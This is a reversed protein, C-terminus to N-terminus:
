IPNSISQAQSFFRSGAPMSGPKSPMSISVGDWWSNGYNANDPKQTVGTPNSPPRKNRLRGARFAHWQDATGNWGWDSSLRWATRPGKGEREVIGIALLEALARSINGKNTELQEAIEATRLMRFDTFNLHEPLAILLRLTVMSRIRRSAETMAATFLIVFKAGYSQAPYREQTVRHKEGDGTTLSM